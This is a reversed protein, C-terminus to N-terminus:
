YGTVLVLYCAGVGHPMLYLEIPPLLFIVLVFLRCSRMPANAPVGGYHLLNVFSMPLFVVTFSVLLSGPVGALILSLHMPLFVGYCLNVLGLSWSCRRMPVLLLWSYRRMPWVWIAVLFVPANPELAILFVPAVLIRNSCSAGSCSDSFCHCLFFRLVPATLPHGMVVSSLEKRKIQLFPNM